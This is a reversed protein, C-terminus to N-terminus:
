LQHDAQQERRGTGTQKRWITRRAEPGLCPDPFLPRRRRHCQVHHRYGRTAQAQRRGHRSRDSGDHQSRRRFHPHCWPQQHRWGHDAAEAGNSAVALNDSADYVDVEGYNSARGVRITAEDGSLFIAPATWDSVAIMGPVGAAGVALTGFDAEVTISDSGDNRVFYIDDGTNQGRLLIGGAPHSSITGSLTSNVSFNPGATNVARSLQISEAPLFVGLGPDRMLATINGSADLTVTALIIVSGDTPPTALLRLWPFHVYSYFDTSSPDIDGEFWEWFQITLSFTGPLVSSPLVSTPLIFAGSTTVEAPVSTAPNGNIDLDTTTEAVGGLALSIHQGASDLAIGPSVNLAPLTGTTPDALTATVSLGSAVGWGHLGSGHVRALPLYYQDMDQASESESPSSEDTRIAGSIPDRYTTRQLQESSM